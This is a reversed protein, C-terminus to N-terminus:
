APPTAPRHPIERRIATPIGSLVGLKHELETVRLMTAHVLTALGDVMGFLTKENDTLAPQARLKEVNIRIEELAQKPNKM